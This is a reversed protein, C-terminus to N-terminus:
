IGHIKASLKMLQLMRERIMELMKETIINGSETIHGVNNRYSNYMARYLNIIRSYVTSPEANLHRDFYGGNVKIVRRTEIQGNQTM